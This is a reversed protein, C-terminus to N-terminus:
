RGHCESPNAEIQNQRARDFGTVFKQFYGKQSIDVLWGEIEPFLSLLQPRELLQTNQALVFGSIPSYLDTATKTSEVVALLDGEEIWTGLPPLQVFVIEGLEKAAFATLGVRQVDPTSALPDVWTLTEVPM